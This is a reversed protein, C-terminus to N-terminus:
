LSSKIGVFLPLDKYTISYLFPHNVDIMRPLPENSPATAEPISILTYAAGEIGYENIEIGAEHIIKSVELNSANNSMNSLDCSKLGLTAFKDLLNYSSYEKYGPFYTFLKYNAIDCENERRSDDLLSLYTTPNDLIDLHNAKPLLINYSFGFSLPISFYEYYENDYVVDNKGYYSLYKNYEM